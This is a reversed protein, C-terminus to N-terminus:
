RVTSYMTRSGQHFHCFSPFDLHCSQWVVRTKCRVQLEWIGILHCSVVLRMMRGQLTMSASTSTQHRSDYLSVVSINDDHSPPQDIWRFQFVRNAESLLPQSIMLQTTYCGRPSLLSNQKRNHDQGQGRQKKSKPARFGHTLQQRARSEKAYIDRIPRKQVTLFIKIVISFFDYSTPLAM